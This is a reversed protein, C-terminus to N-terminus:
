SHWAGSSVVSNMNCISSKKKKKQAAIRLLSLCVKSPPIAEQLPPEIRRHVERAFPVSVVTHIKSPQLTACDCKTSLNSTAVGSSLAISFM